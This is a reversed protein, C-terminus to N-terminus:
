STVRDQDFVGEDCPGDTRAGDECVNAECVNDAHVFDAGMSDARAIGDVVGDDFAVRVADFPVDASSDSGRCTDRCRIEDGERQDARDCLAPALLTGLVIGSRTVRRANVCGTNATVKTCLRKCCMAFVDSADRSATRRAGSTILRGLALVTAARFPRVHVWGASEAGNWGTRM